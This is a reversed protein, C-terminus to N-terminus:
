LRFNTPDESTTSPHTDLLAPLVQELRVGLTAAIDRPTLGSASLRRVEASIAAQDTPKHRDARTRYDLANAM